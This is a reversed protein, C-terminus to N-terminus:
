KCQLGSVSAFSMAATKCGGAAVGNADVVAEGDDAANDTDTAEDITADDAVVADAADSIL